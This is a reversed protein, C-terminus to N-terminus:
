TKGPVTHPIGEEFCAPTVGNGSHTLRSSLLFLLSSLRETSVPLTLASEM